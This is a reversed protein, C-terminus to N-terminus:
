RNGLGHNNLGLNVFGLNSCNKMSVPLEGYLMNNRLFLTQLSVLEGISMPIRGSINNYGLNLIVLGQLYMWNDPLAGFLQNHSIDLFSLALIKFVSLSLLTGSFKNQSLNIKLCEAPIPPLPGDINNSSLDMQKM